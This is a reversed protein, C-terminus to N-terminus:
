LHPDSQNLISAFGRHGVFTESPDWKNRIRLWKTMRHKINLDAVYVGSSVTDAKTYADLLWKDMFADRKPDKWCLMSSVYCKQPLSLAQDYENPYYDLPCFTGSSLRSPLDYLAPTIADIVNWCEGNGYPQFDEQLKWLQERDREMTPVTAILHKKFEDPLVDWTSALVKAEELSDAFMTQNIVFFVRKSKSEETGTPDDKDAYFTCFFLDVGYRPVTKSTQMVYKLLPKFIDTSDVITTM